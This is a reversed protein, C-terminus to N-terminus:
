IKNPYELPLKFTFNSGKGLESIVQITGGLKEILSKCIALGLGTGEHKRSLGSELQIFPEFLKGIDKEGVGIGQDIVQTILIKDKINVKINIIGQSSFKIANSLLNLLIQEVRREDSEIIIDLNSIQTRIELGKNTAQPMLFDITKELTTLYNFAYFSVKLKGAEIKSIDLVDNILGLLHSGSNKVMSLQKKQEENLPGALEKLLIGTFGIISNMPTRLEHSMTALFASKMLDASQAKIKENELESTRVKVLAELNNRHKELELEVKKKETVDVVAILAHPEGAIEIAEVSVLLNIKNGSVLTRSINENNLYGDKKFKDKIKQKQEYYASDLVTVKAEEFTKGILNERTTEFIKAMTENVEIRVDKNNVISFGIVNAQFVKSFKEESEKIKEDYQIRETVDQVLSFVTEVQGDESLLVSSYWECYIMEKAKTNNRNISRNTKVEANMLSNAISTIPELDEHYVLDLDKFHKGLAEHEKWGFINQAQISWNTVIFDKDWEIIALPSNNLHTALRQHAKRKEEEAKKEKTLDRIVGIIFKNKNSDIFRTKKTSITRLDNKNLNLTEETVNEVGTLLVEKDKSLFKEKKDISVNIASIQGIIDARTKNFMACLADNVLIIKSQDDKVFVPDGINNIINEFYQQSEKIKEESSKRETVDICTGAYGNLKNKEDFLGIVKVSVWTVKGKKNVFRFESIFDKNDNVAEVWEKLVRDKDKSHLAKIWDLGMSEEFSLGTYKMFEENVFSCEGDKTTRVIAVPANSTLGRFMMESRILKEEAEKRETVDILTGIYGYLENNVDFLGVSKATVWKTKGKKDLLRFDSILETQSAVAQKWENLVRDRDEIHIASSWRFGLSEEFTLGSYKVWEENVFNCVGEKDTQFIAVPANSSLRRFLLESNILKEETNKKDTVDIAMGIYGNLNNNADFTGVTKVAVWTNKKNKHLFRFQTELEINKSLVYAQWEKMIRDKDEPHITAAWGFGMAEDFSLGAYKSWRDNVYNCSGNIDTQFIGAPAESSLKKFLQESEILQKEAKKRDTIDICIGIYGYLVHNADYLKESKVRLWTTKNKKKNFFRLDIDYKKETFVFAEWAKLVRNKDKPHIANSWGFGMAEKFPIGSYEIWQENVFNCSGDKETKFIGVPANSTLGRFLLESNILKQETKKKDTKDKAVIGLAIPETTEKDRILFGSMEIPILAGTSFNKFETEGKWKSTKFISTLHEKEITKHYYKPFFDSISDPMNEDIGLGVLNRGKANLYIPKGGLTALGIFDDSTETLSLLLQNKADVKKKETIDTFYITLGNSSPYIRSEFWMDLPEYYDQFVQTEQTKMAKNYALYFPLNESEPFEEWIYKGILDSPIRGLIEGAKKNVFTYCLNKDLSIFGDSINNISNEFTSVIRQESLLKLYKSRYNLVTFIEENYKEPSIDNELESHDQIIVIQAIEQGRDDKISAFFITVPFHEGNKRMYVSKFDGTKNKKICTKYKELEKSPWFPFSSKLGILSEKKYGTITCIAKNAILIEGSTNFIILGENISEVYTNSFGYKTSLEEFLNSSSNNM